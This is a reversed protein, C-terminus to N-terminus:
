IFCWIFHCSFLFCFKILKFFIIIDKYIIVWFTNMVICNICFQDWANTNIFIIQNKGGGSLIIHKLQIICFCPSLYLFKAFQAPSWLFNKIHTTNTDIRAITSQCGKMLFTPINITEIQIWNDLVPQMKHIFDVYFAIFVHSEITSKSTILAKQKMTSFTHNIRATCSQSQKRFIPLDYISIVCIRNAWIRFIADFCTFIPTPQPLTYSQRRIASLICFRSM